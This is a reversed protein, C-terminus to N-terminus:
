LDHAISDDHCYLCGGDTEESFGAGPNLSAYRTTAGHGSSFWENRDIKATTGDNWFYNNDDDEGGHCAYCDPSTEDPAAKFGQSHPHCSTCRATASGAYHTDENGTNRWRAVGGAGETRTHCVECIGTGDSNVYSKETAEGSTDHGKPKSLRVVKTGSGMIGSFNPVVIKEDMLFINTKNHPKHCDRCGVGWSGYKGGASQSSHDPLAHCDNCLQSSNDRRLLMGDGEGTANVSIVAPLSTSTATGNEASVKLTYAGPALTLDKEYIAANSGVSYNTNRDNILDFPEAYSAGGDTSVDLSLVNNLDVPDYVKVQLRFVGSV